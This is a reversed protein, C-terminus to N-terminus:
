TSSWTIIIMSVNAPVLSEDDLLYGVSGSGISKGSEFILKRAREIKKRLERSNRRASTKRRRMDRVMGMQHCNKKLVLCRPCLRNAMHRIGSM